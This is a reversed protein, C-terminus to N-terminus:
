APMKDQLAKPLLRRKDKEIDRWSDDGMLRHVAENSIRELHIDHQGLDPIGVQYLYIRHNQSFGRLRFMSWYLEGEVYPNGVGDSCLNKHRLIFVQPPLPLGLHSGKILYVAGTELQGPRSVSVTPINM